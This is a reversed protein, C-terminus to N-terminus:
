GEITEIAGLIAGELIQFATREGNETEVVTNPEIGENNLIQLISNTM